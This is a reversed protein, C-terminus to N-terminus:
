TYQGIYDLTHRSSNKAQDKQEATLIPQGLSFLYDSIIEAKQPEIRLGSLQNKYCLIMAEVTEADHPLIFTNTGEKKVVSAFFNPATNEKSQCLDSIRQNIHKTCNNLFNSKAQDINCLSIVRFLNKRHNETLGELFETFLINVRLQKMLENQNQAYTQIINDLFHHIRIKLYPNQTNFLLLANLLLEPEYWYVDLEDLRCNQVLKLWNSVSNNRTLWTYWSKDNRAPIVIDQIIDKYANELIKPKNAVIAPLLVTFISLAEPFVNNKIDWFSHTQRTFFFSFEFQTTFLSVILKCCNVFDNTKIFPSEEKIMKELDAYLPKLEEGKAKLESNFQFMWKSLVKMEYELDKYDNATNMAIFLDMLYQEDERYEIKIGYLFNIDAVAFVKMRNFFNKIDKKFFAFNVGKSKYDYYNEVIELLHPLLAIPMRGNTGLNVFVKKRLLDWFNNFRESDISVERQTHKCLKLRTLEDITVISLRGDARYTSLEFQKSELHKCFSLKRYLTKGGEGLYFNFLNVTETLSSFDNLDTENTLTPILIKLYNIKALPALERALDIWHQNIPSTHRTYDDEKDFISDWRSKYCALLFQLDNPTLEDAPKRKSFREMLCVYLRADCPILKSEQELTKIFDLIRQVLM